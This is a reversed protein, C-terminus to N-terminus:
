KLRPDHNLNECPLLGLISTKCQLVKRRFFFLFFFNMGFTLRLKKIFNDGSHSYSKNFIRIYVVRGLSMPTVSFFLYNGKQPERREGNVQSLSNLHPGRSLSFFIIPSSQFNLRRTPGNSRPHWSGGFNGWGQLFDFGLCVNKYKERPTHTLTHSRSSPFQRNNDAVGIKRLRQDDERARQLYEAM